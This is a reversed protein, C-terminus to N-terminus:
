DQKHLPLEIFFTTGRNLESEFYIHGKASEIIRKSLALGIGMGSTKTSFNPNFIKEKLQDPIGKGTDTIAVTCIGDKVNAQVNITGKGSMAQIANKFLNNLVREFGIKDVKVWIEEDRLHSIIAVDKEKDYLTVIDSLLATVNVLEPNNESISAFSGFDDALRTLKDIQGLLVNIIESRKSNVDAKSERSMSLQLHQLNLRIPTLPNKIEHAVQKAMEKWAGQRETEALKNTSEQLKVVTKNYQSVLRSIEDNGRWELPEFDGGLKLESMRVNLLNLPRTINRAIFLVVLIGALAMLAYLNVLTKVLNSANENFIVDPEFKPMSLVGELEMNDDLLAYNYADFSMQGIPLSNVEIGTNSKKLKQLTQYPIFPAFYKGEKLESSTNVYLMGKKDYLLIDKGLDRALALLYGNKNNELVIDAFSKSVIANVVEEVKSLHNSAYRDKESSQIFRLVIFLTVLLAVLVISILSLIIKRSLLVNRLQLIPFWQKQYGLLKLKFSKSGLLFTIRFFVFIVFIAGIALVSVLICFFSFNTIFAGVGPLLYSVAIRQKFSPHETIYHMQDGIQIFSENADLFELPLAVPYNIKGERKALFGEQNYIAYSFKREKNENSLWKGFTTADSISLSFSKPKMMIYLSGDSIIENPKCLDWKALYTIPIGQSNIPKFYLLDKEFSSNNYVSFLYDESIPEEPKLLNRGQNDYVYLLIDFDYPLINFYLQQLRKVAKDATLNSFDNIDMLSSDNAIAKEANSLKAEVSEKSELIEKKLYYKSLDREKENNVSYNIFTFVLAFAVFEMFLPQKLKARAFLKSIAYSLSINIIGMLLFDYQDQLVLQSLLLLLLIAALSELMGLQINRFVLNNLLHLIIFWLLVIAVGIFSYVDLSPFDSFNFSLQSDILLTSIYYFILCNIFIILGLSLWKLTDNRKISNEFKQIILFTLILFFISNLVLDGLSPLWSSSAYVSASFFNFSSIGHFGLDFANLLRYGLIAYLTSICLSFVESNKLRCWRYILYSGVLLLLFDLLVFKGKQNAPAIAKFLFAQNNDYYDRGHYGVSSKELLWDNYPAHPMIEKHKKGVSRSNKLHAVFFFKTDGVRRMLVLDTGTPSELLRTFSDCDENDIKPNVEISSWYIWENQKQVFLHHNEPYTFASFIEFNNGDFDQVPQSGVLNHLEEIYEDLEKYESLQAKEELSPKVLSLLAIGILVALALIPRWISKM